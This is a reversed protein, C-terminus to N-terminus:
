GCSRFLCSTFCHRLLFCVLFRVDKCILTVKKLTTGRRVTRGVIECFLILFRVLFYIRYVSEM